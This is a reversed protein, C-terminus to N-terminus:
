LVLLVSGNVNSYLVHPHCFTMYDTSSNQGEKIFLVGFKRVILM